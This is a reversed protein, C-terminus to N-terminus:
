RFSCHSSPELADDMATNVAPDSLEAINRNDTDTIRRGDALNTFIGAPTPWGANYGLLALGVGQDRMKRPSFILADYDDSGLASIQLNVGIGALSKKLAEAQSKSRSDEFVVIKVPFGDPRGCAALEQKAQVVDGSGASPYLDFTSHYRLPPPVLTPAAVAREPGGRATVQAQRDIAWAIAKRCHVNDFPTLTTTVSLLRLVGITVTLRQNDRMASGTLPTQLTAQSAGTQGAFVDTHGSLIQEDITELPLRMTVQIRDPLATNVLDTAPDWESNRVLTLSQGRQYFAFKYPGSSVPRDAYQAEGDKAQPVPTSAPTAMLYNWDGFPRTLHFVITQDDPTDISKLGLKDPSPDQYPGPYRNNPDDLYRTLGKLGATVLQTDFLREIGYKIDRSRIPTGDEFKLGARLTYRWTAADTSTPVATALDGILDTTGPKYTLLQRSYWRQQAWCSDANSRQPDWSDCDATAAVRLTGGRATSPSLVPGVVALPPTASETAAAATSHGPGGGENPGDARPILVLPLVVALAGVAGAILMWWRRRHRSSGRAASAAASRKSVQAAPRPASSAGVLTPQGTPVEPGAPGPRAPGPRSPPTLPGAPPAPMPVPGPVPWGAAPQRQVPSSPSPATPSPAPGAGATPQPGGGLPITPGDSAGASGGTAMGAASTGPHAAPHAAPHPGATPRSGTSPGDAAARVDDDLQVQLDSRTLWGRGLVAAAAAAFDLGFARASPYRMAPDPALARLVVNAVPAPVGPPRPPPATLRRQWLLQVPLARDIPPAGSLLQYLVVGLAYIDTAPGLQGSTIQEPAMYLPTGVQASATAVTGELMKAVGFDTVKAAGAATFLVNDPKIDRHLVGRDHAYGLASAVALGVACGAEPRTDERRRALTGGVLQEMVILCLDATEVYDYVRVIHPHDMRGLLQGESAGDPGGGHAPPRAPLVKIAVNHRLHRHQGALVLGYAGSGLRGGIELGPLAAAVSERDVIVIGARPMGM